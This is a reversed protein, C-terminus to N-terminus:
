KRCGDGLTGNTSAPPRMRPAALDELERLCNAAALIDEHAADYIALDRENMTAQPRRNNTRCLAEGLLLEGLDVLDMGVRPAVDGPLNCKRLPHGGLDLSFSRLHRFFFRNPFETAPTPLMSPACGLLASCSVGRARRWGVKTGNQRRPEPATASTTLARPAASRQDTLCSCSLQRLRGIAGLEGGM